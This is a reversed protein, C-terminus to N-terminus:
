RYLEDSASMITLGLTEVDFEMRLYASFSNTLREEKHLQHMLRM